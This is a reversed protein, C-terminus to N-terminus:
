LDLIEFRSTIPIGILYKIMVDTFYWDMEVVTYYSKTIRKITLIRNSNLSNLRTEMSDTFGYPSCWISFPKGGENSIGYEKKLEEWTKIQIKDGPKYKMIKLGINEM